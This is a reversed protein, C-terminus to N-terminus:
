NKNNNSYNKGFVEERTKEDMLEYIGCVRNAPLSKDIQHPYPLNLNKMINVFEEEGQLLRTNYQKEEAVSTVTQGTYDHGPYLLYDDPLSFIQNHISHYLTHSSGGQFDTRGCGRILLADGTFAMRSGHNVYTICGETHGPTTRVELCDKGFHIIDGNGVAIDAQVDGAGNGIISRMQPFKKRLEGTGTVHDAHVHTNLGYILDLGLQSILTADREVMELVPDIILAKKTVGCGLIYTYTCSVPEFLQRFIFTLHKM